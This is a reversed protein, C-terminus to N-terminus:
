VVKRNSKNKLAKKVFYRLTHAISSFIATFVIVKQYDLTNLLSQSEVEIQTAATTTITKAETKAEAPTTPTASTAQLDSAAYTKSKGTKEKVAAKADTITIYAGYDRVNLLKGDLGYISYDHMNLVVAGPKKAKIVITAITLNKADTENVFNAAHLMIRNKSVYRDITSAWEPLKVSVIEAVDEPMSLSVSLRYTSINGHDVMISFNVTSNPPVEYSRPNFYLKVYEKSDEDILWVDKKVVVDDNAHLIKSYSSNPDLDYHEEALTKASIATTLSTDRVYIEYKGGSLGATEFQVEAEGDEDLYAKKARVYNLGVLTVLIGDYGYDYVRNSKIRVLIPNGATIEDQVEVELTPKSIQVVLSRSDWIKGGYKLYMEMLYKGPHLINSLDHDTEYDRRLNSVIDVEYEAEGTKNAFELDKVIVMDANNGTIRIELYTDTTNATKVRAEIKTKGQYVLEPIKLDLIEPKVVEFEKFYEIPETDDILVKVLCTGAKWNEPIQFKWETTGCESSLNRSEGECLMYSNEPCIVYIEFPKNSDTKDISVQIRLSEGPNVYNKDIYINAAGYAPPALLAVLILTLILLTLSLLKM